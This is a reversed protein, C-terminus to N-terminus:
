PTYEEVDTKFHDDFSKAIKEPTTGEFIDDYYRKLLPDQNNENIIAIDDDFCCGFLERDNKSYNDPIKNGKHIFFRERETRSSDYRGVSFELQKTEGNYKLWITNSYAHIRQHTCCTLFISTPGKKNLYKMIETLSKNTLLSRLYKEYEENEEKRSLFEKRARRTLHSHQKKVVPLLKDYDIEEYDM